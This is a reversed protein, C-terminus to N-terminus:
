KGVGTKKDKQTSLVAAKLDGVAILLAQHNTEVLSRLKEIQPSNAAEIATRTPDSSTSAAVLQGLQEKDITTSGWHQYGIQSLSLFVSIFIAIIAIFRANASERKADVAHERAEKFELFETFKLLSDVTIAYKGSSPPTETYIVDIYSSFSSRIVQIDKEADASDFTKGIMSAAYALLKMYDSDRLDELTPTRPVPTPSM